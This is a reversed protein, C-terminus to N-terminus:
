TEGTPRRGRGALWDIMSPAELEEIVDDARLAGVREHDGVRFTVLRM